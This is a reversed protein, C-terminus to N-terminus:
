SMYFVVCTNKTHHLHICSVAIACKEWIPRYEFPFDKMNM